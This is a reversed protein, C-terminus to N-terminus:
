EFAPNRLSQGLQYFVEGKSLSSIEVGKYPIWKKQHDAGEVAEVFDRKIGNHVMAVRLVAPEVQKLEM